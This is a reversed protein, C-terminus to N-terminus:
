RLAEVAQRIADGRAVLGEVDEPYLNLIAVSPDDSGSLIAAPADGLLDHALRDALTLLATLPDEAGAVHHERIAIEVKEPLQWKSVLAAGAVAHHLSAAAIVDERTPKSAAKKCLDSAAQLLVPRGMDHLLGALFAEEVNSRKVKAV